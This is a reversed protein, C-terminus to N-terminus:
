KCCPVHVFVVTVTSNMEIHNKMSFVQVDVKTTMLKARKCAHLIREPSTSNVSLGCRRM